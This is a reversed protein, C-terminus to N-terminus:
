SAYFTVRFVQDNCKEIARIKRLNSKRGTYRQVCQTYHKLATNSVRAYDAYTNCNNFISLSQLFATNNHM